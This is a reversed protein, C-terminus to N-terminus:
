WEGRHQELAVRVLQARTHTGTKRFLQQLVFKIVTETSNLEGAILKNSLGEVVLRLTRAERPTFPLAAVPQARDRDPQAAAPGTAGSDAVAARIYAALQDVSADKQLIAAAGHGALLLREEDPIGATLVLVPGSFGNRRAQVLFDTGRETGLDIDLVVVDVVGAAVILLAEGVSGSAAKVILDPEANLLKAIGQRLITHDDVILIRTREV